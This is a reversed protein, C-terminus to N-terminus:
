PQLLEDITEFTYGRGRLGAIVAPLAPGDLSQSGVHMVVVAGPEAMSLTRDIIEQTSARRWGLTDISWMVIVPYGLAAVDREVSADLDGYPPRFYPRTSRGTHRFVTTETRSLELSREEFSLPPSNTSFGTFSGHSYSHNIFIHGDAAIARVLDPNQEAWRGTLGWSARVGERRLTDLIAGTYGADSGADFTLAIAMRAIPARRLVTPQAVVTPSPQAPTASPAATAPVPTLTPPPITATSAHATSQATASSPVTSTRDPGDDDGNCAGLLALACLLTALLV